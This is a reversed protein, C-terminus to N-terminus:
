RTRLRCSPATPDARDVKRTTKNPHRKIQIGKLILSKSIEKCSQIWLLKIGPINGAMEPPSTHNARCRQCGGVVHNLNAEKKLIPAITYRTASNIRPKSLDSFFSRRRASPFYKATKWYYMTNETTEWWVSSRLVFYVGVNWFSSPKLTLADLTFSYNGVAIGKCRLIQLGGAKGCPLCCPLISGM